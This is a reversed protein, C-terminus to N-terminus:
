IEEELKMFSQVKAILLFNINSYICDEDKKKCSTDEISYDISVKNGARFNDPLVIFTSFPIYGTISYVARDLENTTYEAVEKMVGQIVLKYGTLIQGENSTGKITNILHYDTIEATATISETEDIAPNGKQRYIKGALSVYKFNSITSSIEIDEKVERGKLVLGDLLIYDYNLITKNAIKRTNDVKIYKAKYKISKSEGVELNGVMVGSSLDINNIIKNEISYSGDVICMAQDIIEKFIINKVDLSGTNKIVIDYTVVEGLSVNVKDVTKCIDLHVKQIKIFVENSKISGDRVQNEGIIKYTYQGLSISSIEFEKPESIVEAEFTIERRGGVEVEGLKVGSLISANKSTIGDIKVSNDVFRLEPNLMDRIIVDSININGSNEIVISFLGRDGIILDRNKVYKKLTINAKEINIISEESNIILEREVEDKYIGELKANSSIIGMDSIYVVQVRIDIVIRAKAKIKEVFIMISDNNKEINTINITKSMVELLKLQSIGKQTISVNYIDEYSNNEVVIKYIFSQGLGVEEYNAKLYINVLKNIDRVEETFRQVKIDDENTNVTINLNRKM